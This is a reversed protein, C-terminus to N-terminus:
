YRLAIRLGYASDITRMPAISVRTASFDDAHRHIYLAGLAVGTTMLIAATNEDSGLPTGAGEDNILPVSALAGLTAGALIAGTKVAFRSGAGPREGRNIRSSASHGISAGLAAGALPAAILLVGLDTDSADSFAAGVAASYGVLLGVGGYGLANVLGWRGSRAHSPARTSDQGAARASFILCCLILWASCRRVTHWGTM